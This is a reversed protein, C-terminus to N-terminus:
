DLAPEKKKFMNKKEQKITKKSEKKRKYLGLGPYIHAPSSAYILLSARSKM